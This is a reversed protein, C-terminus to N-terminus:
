SALHGTDNLSRVVAPGDAFWQVESLSVKDLHMRYLTSPDQLCPVAQPAQGLAPQAIEDLFSRQQSSPDLRQLHAALDDALASGSRLAAL